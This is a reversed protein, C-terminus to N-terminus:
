TVISRSNLKIQRNKGEINIVEHPNYWKRFDCIWKFFFFFVYPSWSPTVVFLKDM